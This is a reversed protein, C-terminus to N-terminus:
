LLEGYALTHLFSTGDSAGLIKLMLPILVMLELRTQVIHFRQALYTQECILGGRRVVRPENFRRKSKAPVRDRHRQWCRSPRASSEAAPHSCMAPCIASNLAGPNTSGTAKMNQCFAVLHLPEVDILAVALVGDALRPSALLNFWGRACVCVFVCVYVRQKQWIWVCVHLRATFALSVDESVLNNMLWLCMQLDVAEMGTQKAWAPVCM